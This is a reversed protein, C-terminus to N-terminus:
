NRLNKAITKRTIDIMLMGEINTKMEPFTVVSAEPNLLRIV